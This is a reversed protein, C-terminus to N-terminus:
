KKREVHELLDKSEIETPNNVAEARIRASHLKIEEPTVPEEGYLLKFPTFKKV